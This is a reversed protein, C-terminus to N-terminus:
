RFGSQNVLFTKLAATASKVRAPTLTQPDRM